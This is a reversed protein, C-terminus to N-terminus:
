SFPKPLLSLATQDEKRVRNSSASLGLRADFRVLLDYFSPVEWHLASQLSYGKQLRVEKGKKKLIFVESLFVDIGLCPM